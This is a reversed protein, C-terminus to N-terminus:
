KLISRTAIIDVGTGRVDKIIVDHLHIPAKVEVKALDQMVEFLLAKPIDGNTAVPLRVMESSVIKVTSTLTRKPCVLEDEAYKKGRLCTYGSMKGSDDVLIHCGKPCVVCIIEKM